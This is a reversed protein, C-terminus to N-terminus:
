SKVIGGFELNIDVVTLYIYLQKKPIFKQGFNSCLFKDSFKKPGFQLNTSDTGARAPTEPTQRKSPKLNKELRLKGLVTKSKTKAEPTRAVPFLSV